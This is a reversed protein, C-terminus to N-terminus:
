AWISTEVRPREEEFGTMGAGGEGAEAGLSPLIRGKGMGVSERCNKGEKRRRQIDGLASM